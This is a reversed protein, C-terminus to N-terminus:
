VKQREEYENRKLEEKSYHLFIYGLTLLILLVGQTVRGKEITVDDNIYLSFIVIMLFGFTQGGFLISGGSTAEGIPFTAQSSFDMITTLFPFIFLGNVGASICVFWFWGTEFGIWMMIFGTFAGVLFIKCKKKYEDKLLLGSGACGVLGAANAIILIYGCQETTINYAEGIWAVGVFVISLSSFVFSVAFFIKRYNKDYFLKKL